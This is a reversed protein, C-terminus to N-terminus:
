ARFPFKASKKTWTLLVSKGHYSIKLKAQASGSRFAQRLHAGHQIEKQIQRTRLQFYETSQPGVILPGATPFGRLEPTKRAPYIECDLSVESLSEDFIQLECKSRDVVLPSSGLNTIAVGGFWRSHGEVIQELEDRVSKAITLQEKAIRLCDASFAAFESGNLGALLTVFSAVKDRRFPKESFENGIFILSTECDLMYCGGGFHHEVFELKPETSSFDSASIAGNYIFSLCVDMTQTRRFRRIERILKARNANENLNSTRSLNSIVVPYQKCISEVHEYAFRVERVNDLDLCAPPLAILSRVQGQTSEDLNVEDDEFCHFHFGWPSFSPISRNRWSSLGYGASISAAAVWLETPIM